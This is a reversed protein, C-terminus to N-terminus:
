RPSTSSAGPWRTFRSERHEALEGAMEVGLKNLFPVDIAIGALEMEALVSSSRAGGAHRVTGPLGEEDLEPELREALQWAADADEGAYDRVITTRVTDM